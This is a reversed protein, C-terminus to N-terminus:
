RLYQQRRSREIRWYEINTNVKNTFVTTWVVQHLRHLVVIRWRDVDLLWLRESKCYRGVWGQRSLWNSTICFCEPYFIRKDRWLRWQRRRQMMLIMLPLSPWGVKRCWTVYCEMLQNPIVCLTPFWFKLSPIGTSFCSTSFLTKTGKSHNEWCGCEYGGFTGCPSSETEGASEIEKWILFFSV